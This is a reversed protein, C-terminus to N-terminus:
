KQIKYYTRYLLKKYKITEFLNKYTKYKSENTFSKTKLFKDTKKNIIKFPRKHDM